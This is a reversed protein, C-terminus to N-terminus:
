DGINRDFKNNSNQPKIHIELPIIREVKHNKDGSRRGMVYHDMTINDVKIQLDIYEVVVDNSLKFEVQYTDKLYSQTMKNYIKITYKVNNM